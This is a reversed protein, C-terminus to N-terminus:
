KSHITISGGGKGADGLVTADEGTEPSNMKNDYIVGGM